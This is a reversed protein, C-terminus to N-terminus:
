IKGDGAGARGFFTNRLTRIGVPSNISDGMEPRKKGVEM